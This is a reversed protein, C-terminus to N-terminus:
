WKFKKWMGPKKFADDTTVEEEKIDRLEEIEELEMKINDIATTEITVNKGNEDHTENHFGAATVNEADDGDYQSITELHIGIVNRPMTESSQVVEELIEGEEIEFKRRVFARLERNERILETFDQEMQEFKRKFYRRDSDVDNRLEDTSNYLSEINTKHVRSDASMKKMLEDHTSLFIDCTDLLIAKAQHFQHYNRSKIVCVDANAGNGKIYRINTQTRNEIRSLVRRNLLFSGFDVRTNYPLNVKNQIPYPMSSSFSQKNRPSSASEYTSNSDTSRTSRTSCSITSATRRQPYKYGQRDIYFTEHSDEM